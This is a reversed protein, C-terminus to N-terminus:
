LDVFEFFSRLRRFNESESRKNERDDTVEWTTLKTTAHSTQLEYM